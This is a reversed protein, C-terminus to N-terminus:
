HDASHLLSYIELSVWKGNKLECDRLTGEYSFNAKSLTKKSNINETEVQAEIRHLGLKEFGYKCVLPLAESIIGKGWHDKLLWFGIEAKKHERILGNLGAAGYFHQNDPSCIAWWFGTGNKELDSFFKMQLKTAELTDYSVGYYKIVSPDSLGKFVNSLDDETLQRLLLRDTKLVPFDQALM